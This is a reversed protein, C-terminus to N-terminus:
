EVGSDPLACYRTHKKDAKGVLSDAHEGAGAAATLTLLLAMLVAMCIRKM